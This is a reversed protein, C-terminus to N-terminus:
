VAKKAAELTNFMLMAVTMLGVGGPVPTIAGAKDFCDEYDVDGVVKGQDDRNIGADIIAAGEKIMDQKIMKARGIAVVLIDARSTHAKLDQTRSHCVTVTANNQMLLIAAPKGVINSRGVIVADKGGIDVGSRELLVIIGHPTCPLFCDKGILMNGVNIPTFGDVDKGVDIADIVADEDIHGPLPLQVLLGHIKPDDNLRYVLSLLDEQSVDAPLEHKESYFGVDACAKEKNRVYIQSGADAGAIIVALGPTVGTAAIFEKTEAAVEARIDASIKRGDIITTV